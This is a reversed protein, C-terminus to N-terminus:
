LARGYDQSLNQDDGHMTYTWGELRPYFVTDLMHVRHSGRFLGHASIVDLTKLAAKHTPGGMPLLPAQSIASRANLRSFCWQPWLLLEFASKTGTEAGIYGLVAGFAASITYDQYVSM